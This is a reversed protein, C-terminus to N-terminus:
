VARQHANGLQYDTEDVPEVALGDRRDQRPLRETIDNAATRVHRKAPHTVKQNIIEDEVLLLQVETEHNNRRIDRRHQQDKGEREEGPEPQVAIHCETM